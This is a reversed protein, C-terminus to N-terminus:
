EGEYVKGELKLIILSVTLFLLYAIIGKVIWGWGPTDTAGYLFAQGAGFLSAILPHPLM